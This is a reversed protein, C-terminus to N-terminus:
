ASEAAEPGRRLRFLGSVVLMFGAGAGVCLLLLEWNFLLPQVNPGFRHWGLWTVVSGVALGPGFPLANDRFVVIQIIAFVLTIMAGAFFAVVVVQWGLFAGVMMMLDADGMGLAEKGLGRSFVARIGRLIWSGVLLGALGTAFGSLHSGLPMWSPLPGWVPWPYLGLGITGLDAMWWLVGPPQPLAAAVNDNPWPWPFLTAGILGIVTGTMTLPLPIERWELDSAACAILLSVLIAHHIFFAWAQWPVLGAKVAWANQTFFPLDHVNLIIEVYFLGAFVLGTLLEVLFYRISFRTGCSRCHGRLVWYSILPINDYWRIPKLCHGCRSSPWLVSKEMPLRAICVNLLSGVAAGLIFTWACWAILPLNFILNGM